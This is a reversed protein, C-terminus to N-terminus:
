KIDPKKRRGKKESNQKKAELRKLQAAVTPKTKKRKKRPTLAKEVLEYFRAIVEEKNKLQSRSSQSVLLLEGESNMRNGLKLLILSKEEETLLISGEVSFRLEVRSNVKNVHQGGPGSSRSFSFQFETEFNRNKVPEM